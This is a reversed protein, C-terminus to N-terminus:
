PMGWPHPAFRSIHFGLTTEVEGSEHPTTNSSVDGYL